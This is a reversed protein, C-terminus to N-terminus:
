KGELTRALGDHIVQMMANRGVIFEPTKNVARVAEKSPYVVIDPSYAQVWRDIKERLQRNEEQAEELAEVLAPVNTRCAAIFELNADGPEHVTAITYYGEAEADYADIVGQPASKDRERQILWPGKTAAEAQAKIAPLNLM